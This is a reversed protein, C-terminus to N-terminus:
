RGAEDGTLAEYGSIIDLLETTISTQRHQHFESRLLALREDINREAAHMAARRSAHESALSEAITRHLTVFLYERVVASFLDDWPGAFTPVARPRWPATALARLRDVDLPLLTIDAPRYLSGTHPRNAYLHVSDVDGAARWADIRELLAQVLATIRTASAPLTFTDALPIGGDELRGAVRTGVALVPGRSAPDREAWRELCFTAIQENFAGCLGHDSGFVIIGHRHARQEPMGGLADPRARLLVQLGQEVGRAYEELAAVAEEYQRISVTALAKMTRVISKLDEATELRRRIASSTRM